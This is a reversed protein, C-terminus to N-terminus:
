KAHVNGKDRILATTEHMEVMDEENYFCVQYWVCKNCHKIDVSGQCIYFNEVVAIQRSLECQRDYSCKGKSGM